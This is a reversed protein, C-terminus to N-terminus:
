NLFSNTKHNGPHTGLRPPGMVEAVSTEGPVRGAKFTSPPDPGQLENPDTMFDVSGRRSSCHAESSVLAVSVCAAQWYPAQGPM